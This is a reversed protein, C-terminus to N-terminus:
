DSSDPRERELRKYLTTRSVQLQRAAEAKNGGAARLAARVSGPARSVAGVASGRPAALFAAPLHIRAIRVSPAAVALAYRCVSRLERVNGPWPAALFLQQVEDDITVIGRLSLERAMELLFAEALPLIEDPRQKLPPVHLVFYGFRDLLDARFRGAGALGNLDANTAAVIRVDVPRDRTEGVRRITGRELVDLLLSQVRPTAEALEDLFFTGRNAAEILGMADERADTFAGRVHGVLRSFALEDSFNAASERVFPGSRQSAEHLRRALQTKGAGRPGLLLVPDRVRALRNLQLSFSPEASTRAPAACSASEPM